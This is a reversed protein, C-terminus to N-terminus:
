AKIDRNLPDGRRVCIVEFAFSGSTFPGTQRDPRSVIRLLPVQDM